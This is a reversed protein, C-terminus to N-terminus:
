DAHCPKMQHTVFYSGQKETLEHLHYSKLLTLICIITGSVLQTEKKATKLRAM